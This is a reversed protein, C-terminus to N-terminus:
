AKNLTKIFQKLCKCPKGRSDYGTDNCATCSYRPEFDAKNIGLEALRKNAREELESIQLQIEESSNGRAIAFSKEITLKNLQKHLKNYTKDRLARKKLEEASNEAKHRLDYYHQEIQARFASGDNTQAPLPLRAPAPATTKRPKVEATTKKKVYKVALIEPAIKYSSLGHNRKDYQQEAQEATMVGDIIINRVTDGATSKAMNLAAAIRAQSSVFINDNKKNSNGRKVLGIVKVANKTPKKIVTEGTELNEFELKKFLYDDLKLYNQKYPVIIKYRSTGLKEILGRAELGDLAPKIAGRWIGYHEELYDYTLKRGNKAAIASLIIQQVNTLGTFPNESGDKRKKGTFDMYFRTYTTEAPLNNLKYKQKIATM